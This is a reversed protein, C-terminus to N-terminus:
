RNGGYDSSRDRWVSHPHIGPVVRGPQMSFEIWLSPGDVRVYDNEADLSPTGSYSLWTDGLEARYKAMLRAADQRSIDGVYRDIADLLLARQQQSLDGARIGAKTGPFNDDRQPGVIVDTYTQSLLARGQEAPSLARLVAVFAAQEQAMPANDRGNARYSTFPEVGRFSPTAGSLAGDQYTMSLALHHGGFYLQWTGKAAPTGLFAMQFNGSAFDGQASKEKLLDDANLIQEIEDYGENAAIGTAERLLAKVVGLQASSFEALTVGVRDHYILPPFSSWKRADQASYPLQLRARLEPTMGKKLLEALCVLKAVGRATCAKDASATDVVGLPTSKSTYYSPLVLGGPPGGGPGGGGGPPGPRQQSLAFSAGGLVLISALLTYRRNM